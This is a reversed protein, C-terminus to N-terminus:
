SRNVLSNWLGKLWLLGLGASGVIFFFVLGAAVMFPLITAFVGFLGGSLAGLLGSMLHFMPGQNALTPENYGSIFGLIAGVIICIITFNKLLPTSLFDDSEVTKKIKERWVEPLIFISWVILYIFLFVNDMISVALGPTSPVTNPTSDPTAVEVEPTVPFDAASRIHPPNGEEIHVHTPVKGDINTYTPANRDVASADALVVRENRKVLTARRVEQANATILSALVILSLLLLKM